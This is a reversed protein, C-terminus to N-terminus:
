NDGKNLEKQRADRIAPTSQAPISVMQSCTDCVGVLIAKAAGKCDSFLVDRRLFTTTVLKACQSCIAKGSDGEQYLKM